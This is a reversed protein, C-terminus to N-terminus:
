EAEEAFSRPSPKADTVRGRKQIRDERGADEERERGSLPRRGRDIARQGPMAADVGSIQGGVLPLRVAEDRTEPSEDVVEVIGDEELSEAALVREFDHTLGDRGHEGSAHFPDRQRAADPGAQHKEADPEIPEDALQSALRVRGSDLSALRSDLTGERAVAM